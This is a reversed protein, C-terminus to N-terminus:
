KAINETSPNERDYNAIFELNASDYPEDNEAEKEIKKFVM